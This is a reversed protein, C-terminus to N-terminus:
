LRCRVIIDPEDNVAASLYTGQTGESENTLVHGAGEGQEHVITYMEAHPWMCSTWTDPNSTVNVKYPQVSCWWLTLNGGADLKWERAAVSFKLRTFILYWCGTPAQKVVCCLIYIYIYHYTVTVICGIYLPKLECVGLAKRWRRHWLHKANHIIGYVICAGWHTFKGDQTVVSNPTTVKM